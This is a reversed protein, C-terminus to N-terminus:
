MKGRLLRGPQVQEPHEHRGQGVTLVLGHGCDERRGLVGDGSM